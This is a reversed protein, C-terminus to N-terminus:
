EKFESKWTRVERYGTKIYKALDATFEESGAKNLHFEDSFKEPHNNFRSDSSYDLFTANPYKKLINIIIQKELTQNDLYFPNKLITPSIIVLTKINNKTTNDMFKKFYMIAKDDPVENKQRIRIYRAQMKAKYDKLYAPTMQGLLPLYGNDDKRQKGPFLANTGLIFISSNYPYTQSCLKYKEFYSVESIYKELEQHKCCYPLLITLKEYKSPSQGLEWPNIDLIVLQPKHRNLSVEEVAASYPIMQGDRGSNYCSLGLQKSLISTSYHRVARSSGFIMIDQRASDIAYTTQSFQGVRQGFYVKRFAFGLVEDMVILLLCFAALKLLFKIVRREEM